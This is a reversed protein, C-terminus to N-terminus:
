IGRVTLDTIIILTDIPNIVERNIQELGAECDILVIDFNKSLSKIADRLLANVPCFCGASEQRGM